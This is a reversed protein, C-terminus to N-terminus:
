DYKLISHITEIYFKEIQDLISHELGYVNYGIGWFIKENITTVYNFCFKDIVTPKMNACFYTKAIEIFKNQTLFNSQAGINSIGFHFSLEKERDNVKTIKPYFKETSNKLNQHLDDNLKKSETWFHKILDEINKNNYNNYISVIGGNYYGMIEDDIQDVGLLNKSNRLCVSIYYVIENLDLGHSKYLKIFSIIIILNLCSTFKINNAKCKKILNTSMSHTLEVKRIKTNNKKSIEILDNLSFIFSSNSASYFSGQLINKENLIQPFNFEMKKAKELNYFFPRKLPKSLSEQQKAELWDPFIEELSPIIGYSIQNNNLNKLISEEILNLLQYVIAYSNRAESIVHNVNFLVEFENESNSQSNEIKLFILRWLLEDDETILNSLEKQLLLNNLEDLIKDIKNGYQFDSVFKLFQVNKIDNKTDNLVFYEVDNNDKYIRSCLFPHMEKWKQIANKVLFLNKYLDFKTKIRFTHVFNQSSPRKLINSEKEGLKRLILAM